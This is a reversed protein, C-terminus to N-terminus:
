ISVLIILFAVCAHLAHQMYIYSTLIRQMIIKLNFLVHGHRRKQRAIGLAPPPIPREVGVSFRLTEVDRDCRACFQYLM